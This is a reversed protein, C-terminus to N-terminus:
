TSRTFNRLEKMPIMILCITDKKTILIIRINNMIEQCLCIRFKLLYIKQSRAGYIGWVVVYKMYITDSTVLIYQLM